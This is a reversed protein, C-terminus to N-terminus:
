SCEHFSLLLILYLMSSNYENFHQLLINRLPTVVTIKDEENLFIHKELYKITWM